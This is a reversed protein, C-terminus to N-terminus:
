HVADWERALEAEAELWAAAEPASARDEIAAAVLDLIEAVQSNTAMLCYLSPHLQIRRFLPDM